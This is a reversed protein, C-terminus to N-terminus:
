GGGHLNQYKANADALSRIRYASYSGRSYRSRKVPGCATCAANWMTSGDIAIGVHTTSLILDGPGRQEWAVRTLGSWSMFGTTTKSGKMLGLRNLV